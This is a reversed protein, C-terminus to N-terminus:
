GMRRWQQRSPFYVAKKGDDTCSNYLRHIKKYSEYIDRLLYIHQDCSPIIGGCCIISWSWRVLFYNNDIKLLPYYVDGEKKLPIPNKIVDEIMKRENVWSPHITQYDKQTKSFWFIECAYPLLALTTGQCWVEKEKIWGEKCEKEREENLEEQKIYYKLNEEFKNIISSDSRLEWDPCAESPYGMPHVGCLISNNNAFYYCSKCDSKGGCQSPQLYKNILEQIGPISIRSALNKLKSKKQNLIAEIEAIHDKIKEGYEIEFSIKDYQRCHEKRDIKQSMEKFAKVINPKLLPIPICAERLGDSITALDYYDGEDGADEYLFQIEKFSKDLSKDLLVCWAANAISYVKLSKAEDIIRFLDGITLHITTRTQTESNKPTTM